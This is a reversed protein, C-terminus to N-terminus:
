DHNLNDKKRCCHATSNQKCHQPPEGESEARKQWVDHLKQLLVDLQEAEEAEFDSLLDSMVANYQAQMEQLAQKGSETLAVDFNRKDAESKEKTIYGKAELKSLLESLSSARVGLLELIDRQTMPGHRHLLHLVRRQSGREETHHRLFHACYRLNKIIREDTEPIHSNHDNM